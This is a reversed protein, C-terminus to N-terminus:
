PTSRNLAALDAIAAALLHLQELNSADGNVLVDPSEIVQGFPHHDPLAHARDTRLLPTPPDWIRKGVPDTVTVTTQHVCRGENAWRQGVAHLRDATASGISSQRALGLGASQAHLQVSGM